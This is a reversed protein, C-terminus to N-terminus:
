LLSWQGICIDDLPLGDEGPGPKGLFRGNKEQEVTLPSDMYERVDTQLLVEKERPVFVAASHNMASMLTSTQSSISSEGATEVPQSPQKSVQDKSVDLHKQHSREELTPREVDKRQVPLSPAEISEEVITSIKTCQRAENQDNDIATAENSPTEPFLTGYLTEVLEFLATKGVGRALAGETGEILDRFSRLLLMNSTSAEKFARIRDSLETDKRTGKSCNGDPGERDQCQPKISPARDDTHERVAAKAAAIKAELDTKEDCRATFLARSDNLQHELTAVEARTNSLMMASEALQAQTAAEREELCKIAKDLKGKNERLSDRDNELEQYNAQLSDRDNELEQYNAQLKTVDEKKSRDLAEMQSRNKALQSAAAAALLKESALAAERLQQMDNDKAIQRCRSKDLYLRPNRLKFLLLLITVLLAAGMLYLIGVHHEAFFRYLFLVLSNSNRQTIPHDSALRLSQHNVDPLAHATQLPRRCSTASARPLSVPSPPLWKSTATAVLSPAIREHYIDNALSPLFLLVM